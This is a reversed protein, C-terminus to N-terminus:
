DGKVELKNNLRNVDALRNDPDIEISKIKKGTIRFRYTPNVWMWTPLTSVSDALAKSGLTESMPIFYREQHDDRFTILVELPMPIDGLRQLTIETENKNVSVEKITYDIQKTTSIWYNLFWKLQLGSVKEMIFIFDNPEPHSFKWTNYYALMGKTFNEDGMIFELQTLFLCGKMYSGIKYADNTTFFDAFLAAPEEKGSLAKKFYSQYTSEFPKDMGFLKQHASFEAFRTFGEDMWAYQSENSALTGQFWAHASEHIMTVVTGALTGNGTIMTCMQYEMGGDGGQIISYSEYPYSGFKTNMFQFFASAIPLLKKWHDTKEGTQYFFHLLPGDPVQIKDHIYDPDASWAFDHVNQAIFHWDLNAKQKKVFVGEDEYGHGIEKKNQLIGTGAVTYTSPLSITVDYNGWEGYFERAVYQNAHWGQHDYAAVKPYWQTMTYDILEINNRGSRRIQIPVQAEFDLSLTSVSNPPVPTKLDVIMLTGEVVFSVDQNNQRLKTIHQYGIENEKLKGIREGIRKDPDVVHRSRIDMMSGPQFANFYLHYYIKFLTDPSHNHYQLTQNGTLINKKTDLKVQM